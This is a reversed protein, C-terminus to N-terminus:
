TDSLAAAATACLTKTSTPMTVSSLVQTISRLLLQLSNKLHVDFCNWRNTEDELWLYSLLHTSGTLQCLFKNEVAGAIACKVLSVAKFIAPHLRQKQIMRAVVLSDFSIYFQNCFRGCLNCSKFSSVPDDSLFNFRTFFAEHFFKVGFYLKCSHKNPQHKVSPLSGTCQLNFVHYRFVVSDSKWMYLVM